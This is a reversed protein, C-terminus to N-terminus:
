LTIARLENNNVLTKPVLTCRLFFSDADETDFRHAEIQINNYLCFKAVKKVFANEIFDKDCPNFIKDIQDALNNSEAVERLQLLFMHTSIYDHIWQMDIGYPLNDMYVIIDSLPVAANPTYYLLAALSNYTKPGIKFEQIVQM